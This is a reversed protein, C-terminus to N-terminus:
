SCMTSFLKISFLIYFSIVLNIYIQSTCYTRYRVSRFVLGISWLFHYRCSIHFVLNMAFNTSFLVTGHLNWVVTQADDLWNQPDSIHIGCGPDLFLWFLSFYILQGAKKKNSHEWFKRTPVTLRSRSFSIESGPVPYLPWFVVPNGIGSGSCKM